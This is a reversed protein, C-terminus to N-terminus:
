QITRRRRTTAAPALNNVQALEEDVAPADPDYRVWGNKEDAEAESEAIAVKRGHLPHKLYLNM